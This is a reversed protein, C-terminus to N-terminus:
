LSFINPFLNLAENPSLLNKSLAKNRLRLTELSRAVNQLINCKKHTTFSRTSRSHVLQIGILQSQHTISASTTTYLKPTFHTSTNFNYTSPKTQSTSCSTLSHLVLMNQLANEPNLTTFSLYSTFYKTRTQYFVLPQISPQLIYKTQAYHLKTTYFLATLTQCRKLFEVIQNRIRVRKNKLQNQNMYLNNCSTYNSKNRWYKSHNNTYLWNNRNLIEM